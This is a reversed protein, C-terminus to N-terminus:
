CTALYANLLGEVPKDAGSLVQCVGWVGGHRGRAESGQSVVRPYKGKEAASRKEEQERASHRLTLCPSLYGPTKQKKRKESPPSPACTNMGGCRELEFAMSDKAVLYCDFLTDGVRRRVGGGQPSLTKQKVTLAGSSQLAKDLHGVSVDDEGVSLSFICILGVTYTVHCWAINNLWLVAVSFCCGSVFM